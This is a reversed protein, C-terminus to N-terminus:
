SSSPRLAIRWFDLTWDRPQSSGRSFSMAVWELIRAQLIEHVSSGPLGWNMPDCLTPCLQAVSSSQPEETWPIKWAPTSSHTAMEKELPDEWGLSQVRTEQMAPPNKVLQAVLSTWPYQLPHGEGTSRGLGPISGQDGANCASAKVESGGPLLLTPLWLHSTIM